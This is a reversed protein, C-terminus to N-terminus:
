KQQRNHLYVVFKLAIIVFLAYKVYLSAAIAVVLFWMPDRSSGAFGLVCIPIAIVFLVLMIDAIKDLRKINM